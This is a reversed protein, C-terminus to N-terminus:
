KPEDFSITFATGQGVKSQVDVSAKHAQLITLTSALGLGMGNRKSTFYPEFLRSLNEENIGIGNDAIHVTHKGNQSGVSIRILAPKSDIAEVANILINLFAIKLKERDAMVFAPEDAYQVNLQIQRLTIRDIAAAITDDMIGQLPHREMM